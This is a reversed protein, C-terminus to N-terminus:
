LFRVVTVRLNQGLLTRVAQLHVSRRGRPGAVSALILRVGAGRHSPEM